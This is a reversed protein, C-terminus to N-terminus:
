KTIININKNSSAVLKVRNEGLYLIINKNNVARVCVSIIHSNNIIFVFFNYYLSNNSPTNDNFYIKGSLDDITFYFNDFIASLGKGSNKLLSERLTWYITAKLFKKSLSLKKIENAERSHLISNFNDIISMSNILEVDVGVPQRSIACCALYKTYSINSYIKGPLNIQEPKGSLGKKFIWRGPRILYFYSLSIRLMVHATIYSNKDIDFFFNKVRDYEDDSLIEQYNNIKKINKFVQSINIHVDNKSLKKNELKYLARSFKVRTNTELMDM